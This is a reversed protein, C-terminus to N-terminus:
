TEIGREEEKSFRRVRREERKEEIARYVYRVTKVGTEHGMGRRYRVDEGREIGYSKLRSPSLCLEKHTHTHYRNRKEKRTERERQRTERKQTKKDEKQGRM